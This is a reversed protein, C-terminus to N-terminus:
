AMGETLRSRDPWREHQADQGIMPTRDGHILAVIPGRVSSCKVLAQVDGDNAEERKIEILRPPRTKPSFDRL